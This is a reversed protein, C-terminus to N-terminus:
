RENLFKILPLFVKEMEIYMQRPNVLTKLFRALMGYGPQGRRGIYSLMNDSFIQFYESEKLRRLSAILDPIQPCFKLIYYVYLLDKDKKEKSSRNIFTIGKHFLFIAPEVIKLMLHSGNYPIELVLHQSQLLIDFGEIRHCALQSGLFRQLTDDSVEFSTIFEVKVRHDQKKYLFEIPFIELDYLRETLYGANLLREYVTPNFRFSGSEKVGIDIDFTRPIENLPLKWLYKTYLYPCWGGVVIMQELSDGLAYLTEFLASEFLDLESM